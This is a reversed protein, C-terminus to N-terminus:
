YHYSLTIGGFSDARRQTRYEKTQFVHTYGLKVQSWQVVLGLQVDSVFPYKDVRRSDSFSNGDLFINRALARGEVGAFVYWAFASPTAFRNATPLGPRIRPVGYDNPLAHGYRLTLGGSAATFVNGLSAGLHPTLDLENGILTTTIWGRWSRFYSLNLGPENNLQTGWGRPQQGDFLRHTLSQTEQALSAPGVIGLTLSLMAIDREREALISASTYLWGAYPRDDLPPDTQSIDSATFMTQGLSYGYRVKAPQSFLPLADGLRMLWDPPPAKPMWALQIGNTYHRDQNNFLDNEFTLTLSGAQVCASFACTLLGYGFRGLRTM